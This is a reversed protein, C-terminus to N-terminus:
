SPLRNPFPCVRLHSSARSVCMLLSHSNQAYQPATQQGAAVCRLLLNWPTAITGTTERNKKDKKRGVKCNTGHPHWCYFDDTGDFPTKYHEHGTKGTCGNADAWVQLIDATVTYYFGDESLVSGDAGRGHGNSINSPIVDDLVGHIDMVPFPFPPPNNFGVLPAGATPVAAAFRKAISPNTALEYVMMAGMSMGALFVRETDICLEDELKDLLKQVYLIDDACTGCDCGDADFWSRCGHIKECSSHCPYFNKPANTWNCTPGFKGPSDITGVANWSNAQQGPIVTDDLGHPYVTIFNYRNGVVKFGTAEEQGEATDYYGHFDLVVATPQFSDYSQPVFIRFRRDILGIIPDDVSVFDTRAGTPYAKRCGSTTEQGLNVSSTNMSSAGTDTNPIRVISGSHVGVFFGVLLIAAHLTSGSM